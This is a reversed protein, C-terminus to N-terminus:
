IGELKVQAAAEMIPTIPIRRHLLSGLMSRFEVVDEGGTSREADSPFVGERRGMGWLEARGSSAVISEVRSSASTRITAVALELVM